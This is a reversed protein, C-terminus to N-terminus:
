SPGRCRARRVTPDAGPVDWGFMSGILMAEVQALTPVPDLLANLAEASRDTNVPRYGPEGRRILVVGGTEPHTAHCVPPLGADAAM